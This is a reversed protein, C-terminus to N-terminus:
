GASAGRKEIKELWKRRGRDNSSAVSGVFDHGVPKIGCFKLINRELNHYGHARFFWRYVPGPMGMTIIVRASKGKLLRAGIAGKDEDPAFAFGPRLTQELFAKVRAPMTGLWLPFFLVLHDARRIQEQVPELAPPVSGHIWEDQSELMPYDLEALRVEEVTHGSAEAGNRYAEALAHGFHGGQPDPHGQILLIRRSM